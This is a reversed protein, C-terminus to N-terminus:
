KVQGIIFGLLCQLRLGGNVIIIMIIIIVIIIFIIIINTIIIIIIIISLSLLQIPLSSGHLLRQLGGLRLRSLGSSSQLLLAGHSVLDHGNIIM